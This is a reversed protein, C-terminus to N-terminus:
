ATLNHLDQLRGLRETGPRQHPADVRREHPTLHKLLLSMGDVEDHAALALLRECLQQRGQTVAAVQRTAVVRILGADALQHMHHYLRTVPVNMSAAVEAVTHPHRLRRLLAGRTTHTVHHMADIDLLHMVGDPEDIGPVPTWGDDTPALQQELPKVM